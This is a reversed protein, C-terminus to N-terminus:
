CSSFIAEVQSNKRRLAALHHRLYLGIVTATKRVHVHSILIVDVHPLSLYSIRAHLTMLLSM